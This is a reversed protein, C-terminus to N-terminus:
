PTEAAIWLETLFGAWLGMEVIQWVWPLLQDSLHGQEGFQPLWWFGFLMALLDLAIVIPLVVDSIFSLRSRNRLLNDTINSGALVMMGLWALWVEKFGVKANTAVVWNWV